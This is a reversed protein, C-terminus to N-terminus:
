KDRFPDEIGLRDYTAKKKKHTFFDFKLGANLNINLMSAYVQANHNTGGALTYNLAYESGRLPSGLLTSVLTLTLNKFLKIDMRGSIGLVLQFNHNQLLSTSMAYGSDYVAFGPKTQLFKPHYGLGLEAGLMMKMRNIRIPFRYFYRATLTVYTKSRHYDLARNGLSDMISVNIRERMMGLSGEFHHSKFAYGAYLKTPTISSFDYLEFPAVNTEMQKGGLLTATPGINFGFGLEGGVYFHDTNMLVTDRTRKLYEYKTAQSYVTAPGLFIGALLFLSLCFRGPNLYSYHQM